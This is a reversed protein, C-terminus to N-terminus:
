GKPINLSKKHIQEFCVMTFQIEGVEEVSRNVGDIFQGGRYLQFITKSQKNTQKNKTRTTTAKCTKGLSTLCM